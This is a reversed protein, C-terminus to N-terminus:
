TRSPTLHLKPPCRDERVGEDINSLNSCRDFDWPEAIRRQIDHDEHPKRYSTSQRWAGKLYKTWTGDGLGAYLLGEHGRTMYHCNESHPPFFFVLTPGEKEPKSNAMGEPRLQGKPDLNARGEQHLPQGKRNPQCNRRKPQPQGKGRKPLPEGKGRKPQPKARGERPQHQGKPDSNARGEQHDPNARGEAPPRPQGKKPKPNTRRRPTPGENKPDPNARRPQGKRRPRYEEGASCEM